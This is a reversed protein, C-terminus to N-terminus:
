RRTLNMYHKYLAAFYGTYAKKWPKKKGCFHLFVTNQMVWDMNCEGGSRMRYATFYRADYNWVRDDIQMTNKGYLYNFVDQDPLLLEAGHERICAYIADPRVIERGKVLDMLIVGTNFYEHEQGLRVKNVEDIAEFIGSHSAAAFVCDKLNIEWLSRLPNIALIDVDLYLVRKVYEPLLHPSMLRYYMEQPYRKSVPANEFISREIQVPILLVIQMSCYEMLEQLDERPIQSYLLWIRFVEGPNNFVLSKLMVRFFKIYNKNFSVLIDIKQDM